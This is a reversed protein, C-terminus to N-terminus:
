VEWGSRYHGKVLHSVDVNRARLNASDWEVLTQSLVALNGLLVWETFPCAYEFNSGTNARLGKCADIWEKYHGPSRELTKAPTAFERVGSDPTFKPSGGYTECTIKGKDGIFLSGNDPVKENPGLGLLTRDPKKGGDHWMLKVPPLAGRAPFQYTIIEWKPGTEGTAGQSYAVVSDPSGLKLAWCAPDMLHCAMDGLAGTGFDWFGRWSFPHYGEQYERYMAPGLWLDWDLNAPVPKSGEPRGIGQKWLPRDTWCHVERVPGIAGAWILECFSRVDDSSHGQNGMLTAVKTERAAKLLARAEYVSHTLPKQVYVHKKLRMARIAAPAHHHDPTSVTCADIEKVTELMKRYDRFLQAKPFKEAAKRLRIEDVDCLAVVNETSTGTKADYGAAGYMDSEGKGAVGIIALNLRNGPNAAQLFAPPAAAALIAALASRRLFGRRSGDFAFSPKMTHLVSAFSAPIPGPGLRCKPPHVGPKVPPRRAPMLDLWLHACM